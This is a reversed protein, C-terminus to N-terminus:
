YYKCISGIVKFFFGVIILLLLGKTIFNFPSGPHYKLKVLCSTHLVTMTENYGIQM